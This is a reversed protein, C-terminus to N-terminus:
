SPAPIEEEDPHTGTAQFVGRRAGEVAHDAFREYFRGLFAADVTAPVGHAWNRDMVVALLNRYLDDM